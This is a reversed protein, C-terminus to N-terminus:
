DGHGYEKFASPILWLGREDSAAQYVAYEPSHDQYFGFAFGHRHRLTATRTENYEAWVNRLCGCVWAERRDLSKAQAYDISHTHGVITPGYAMAIAYATHLNAINGHMAKLVPGIPIYSKATYATTQIGLDICLNDIRAVVEKAYDRIPGKGDAAVRAPRIDHNGYCWHTAEFERILEMGIKVDESMSQEKESESAGKRFPVFDFVDGGLIRMDPAFDKCFEILVKWSPRNVEHGHPDPAYVFRKMKQLTM